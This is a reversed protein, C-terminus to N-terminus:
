YKITEVAQEIILDSEKKQDEDDDEYSDAKFKQSIIRLLDDAIMSKSMSRINIYISNEDSGTKGARSEDILFITFDREFGIHLGKDSSENVYIDIKQELLDYLIPNLMSLVNLEGTLSKIGVKCM